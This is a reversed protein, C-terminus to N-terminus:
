NLLLKYDLTSPFAYYAHLIHVLFEWDNPLFALFGWPTNKQSVNYVM